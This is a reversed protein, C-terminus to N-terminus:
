TKKKTLKRLKRVSKTLYFRILPVALSLLRFHLTGRASVDLKTRGWIPEVVVKVEDEPFTSQIMGTIPYSMGLVIGTQAPDPMGIKVHCFFGEFSIVKLLDRILRRAERSVEQFLDLDWPIRPWERVEKREGPREKRLDTKWVPSGLVKLRFLQEDKSLEFNGEFVGALCQVTIFQVLNTDDVLTEFVLIIPM